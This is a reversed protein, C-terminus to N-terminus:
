YCKTFLCVSTNVKYSFIHVSLFAVIIVFWHGCVEPYGKKQLYAIIAQGVLKANRVMHLVKVGLVTKEVDGNFDACAANCHGYRMM